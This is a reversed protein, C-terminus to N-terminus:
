VGAAVLSAILASTGSNVALAHRCGMHVAFEREFEVTKSRKNYYRFFNGADPQPDEAALIARIKGQAAQSVNFVDMLGMLEDAGFKCMQRSM